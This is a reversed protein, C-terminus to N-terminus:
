FNLKVDIFHHLFKFLSVLREDQSKVASSASAHRKDQIKIKRKDQSKQGRMPPIEDSREEVKTKIQVRFGQFKQGSSQARRGAGM